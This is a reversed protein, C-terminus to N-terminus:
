FSCVQSFWQEVSLRNSFVPEELSVVEGLSSVIATVVCQEPNALAGDLAAVASTALGRFVRGHVQASVAQRRARRRQKAVARPKEFVVGNIAEFCKRLQFQLQFPDNSHSLIDLLEAFLYHSCLQFALLFHFVVCLAFKGRDFLFYFRSFNNRKTRLFDTM